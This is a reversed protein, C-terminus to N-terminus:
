FRNEDYRLDTAGIVGCEDVYMVVESSAALWVVPEGVEETLTM